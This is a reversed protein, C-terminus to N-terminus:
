TCWSHTYVHITIQVACILSRLWCILVHGWCTQCLSCFCYVTKDQLNVCLTRYTHERGQNPDGEPQLVGNFIDDVEQGNIPPLDVSCCGLFPYIVVVDLLNIGFVYLASYHWIYAFIWWIGIFVFICNKILNQFELINCGLINRLANLFNWSLLSFIIGKM